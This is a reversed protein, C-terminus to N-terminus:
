RKKIQSRAYADVMSDWSLLYVAGVLRLYPAMLVQWFLELYSNIPSMGCAGLKLLWGDMGTSIAFWGRSSMRIIDGAVIQSSFLTGSESLKATLWPKTKMEERYGETDTDPPFSVSVYINYPKLEM